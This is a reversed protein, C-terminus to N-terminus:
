LLWTAGKSKAETVIVDVSGAVLKRALAHIEKRDRRSNTWAPVLQYTRGEEHSRERMGAHFQELYQPPPESIRLIGIRAPNGAQQANAPQTFGFIAFTLALFSITKHM